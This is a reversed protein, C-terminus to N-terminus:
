YQQEYLNKLEKILSKGKKIGADLKEFAKPNPTQRFILLDKSYNPNYLALDWWERGSLFMSMQCQAKYKADIGKEGYLIAKMHNVDNLAKIELGGIDGILGDPSFGTLEDVEVFGVQMVSNGTVLEYIGRAIPELEHGRETDGNTFRETNSSYHETLLTLVLTELGKGNAMIAQANSATLKLSRIKFWEDTGQPVDHYQM